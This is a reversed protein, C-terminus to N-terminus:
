AAKVETRERLFAMAKEDLMDSELGARRRGQDILARVEPLPKGLREAITQIRQDVEAPSLTIDQQRRTADLVFYKRIARIASDRYAERIERDRAKDDTNPERQKRDEEIVSTLYNEIMVEPVDFPNGAIIQDIIKEDVERQYKSQEEAELQERIRIKLELLTAVGPDIRKALNDDAEPLLREKVENVRVQFSRSKGALEPDGFDAPYVVDIRREDGAKAGVLGTRFEELLSEGALSVPYDKVRLKEDPEGSEALPVYDLVVYDTPTAVRDVTEFAALRERLSLLMQEVDSDQVPRRTAQVVMRDYGKLEIDPRVEITADFSLGGDPFQVNEFRPDGLPFLQEQHLAQEFVAPLVNQVADSQVVEAYNKQIYGAPVKGKRFGPIRVEKRLGALVRSREKEMEEAPVQISLVRKTQSPSQVTVAFAREPGHHHDHDHDHDHDHGHDHGHEHVHDHGGHESEHEHTM